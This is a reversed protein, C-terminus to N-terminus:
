EAQKYEINREYIEGKPKEFDELNYMYKSAIGDIFAFDSCGCYKCCVDEMESNSLDMDKEISEQSLYHKLCGFPTLTRMGSLNDLMEKFDSLNIDVVGDKNVFSTKTLYKIVECISKGLSEPTDSKLYKVDVSGLKGPKNAVVNLSHEWANRLFDFNNGTGYKIVLCHFHPHWLKSNEGRKVELARLGGIFIDNFQKAVNKNGNMMYRFSKNLLNLGDKLSETDKITFTVMDLHYNSSKTLLQSIIGYCKSLWLLARNKQCVPCFRDKCYYAGNFYDTHCSTCHAIKLQTGCWKLRRVRKVEDLEM